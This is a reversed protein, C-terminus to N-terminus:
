IPTLSLVFILAKIMQIKHVLQRDAVPRQFPQGEPQGRM